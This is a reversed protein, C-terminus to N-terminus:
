RAALRYEVASTRYFTLVTNRRFRLKELETDGGIALRHITFAVDCQDDVHDALGANRRLEFTAPWATKLENEIM